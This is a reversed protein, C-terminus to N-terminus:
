PCATISTIWEDVVSTGLPDVIRSGIDPMRYTDTAHMRLSILSLLPNGPVLLKAGAVGLDGEQPDVNCVNMSVEPTTYLLDLDGQGSSGPRHCNACNSHLYSRARMDTPLSGDPDPLRPPNAPPANVFLGIHELTALQPANRGGPYVLNRNMQATELGLSRGAANTHCALCEGRSPFTWPTPAVVTKGAPLLAADTQADNWEYSYGAWNGDDHRVLLRTELRRTGSSFEKMLVSGVPLDWDGDENITIRAGDPLAMWRKKAAGDSWLPSNVEYPILGSAPQAPASPVVCGTESLLQPFADPAPTGSPVLKHIKGTGYDLVYIEGDAGQGFSGINMGSEVLVQAGQAGTQADTIVAWITGFEFDAFIFSGILEPITTGRYVFGGTISRGLDRGYEVVPDIRGGGDCPAADEFCRTGEKDDWGYNGGREVVDVEEIEDQGVDGAWLVGTDRDFSFRWPNRFGYAFIEPRGGVGDAYPNDAPIGYLPGGDVDIRLIKGLLQDLDQGSECPDNALGGDGFGIYLFGDLPSFAINGGNHNTYPQALPLLVTESGLTGTLGGDASSFRSIRSTLVSNGCGSGGTGPGTYSLYFLGNTDFAPHFAMGLLGYETGAAYTVPGSADLFVTSAAVNPDNPFTRVVGDQQMVYWRDSGPAQFLGLPVNFTLNAFAPALAVAVGTSPRAPALCTDNEPRDDLGFDTDITGGGKSKCAGLVLAALLTCSLSAKLLVSLPPAHM